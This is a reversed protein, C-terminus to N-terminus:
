KLPKVKLTSDLVFIQTEKIIANYENKGRYHHELRYCGETDKKIQLCLSSDNSFEKLNKNFEKETDIKSLKGFFDSQYSSPDNLEKKIFSSINEEAIQQNTKNQNGETESCGLLFLSGLIISIFKKM